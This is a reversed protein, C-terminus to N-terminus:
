ATETSVLIAAASDRRMAYRAGAVDIEVPCGLPARRVVRAAVGPLVGLESLRRRLEPEADVAVVVAQVGPPLEVLPRAPSSSIM